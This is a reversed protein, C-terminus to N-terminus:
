KSAVAPVTKLYGYMAALEEDTGNKFTAWPMAKNIQHGAPTTGTRLTNIFDQQSWAGFQGGPTINPAPPSNPDPTKAGALNSGHCSRCGSIAVLYQGFDPTGAAPTTPLRAGTHDIKDVAFVEGFVGAAILIRGVPLIQPEPSTHDVPPFSKIYAILAGMDQDSLNTYDESPMIFLARGTPDVGHRLVRVFDADSFTAAAGGQGRTLNPTDVVALPPFNFFEQGQLQEGHCGQCGLFSKVLHEGRALSAADTPVTVAPPPYSYRKALRLSTATYLGAVVLVMLVVLAGLIIGIWRLVKRM